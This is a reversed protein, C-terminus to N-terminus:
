KLERKFIVYMHIKTLTPPIQNTHVKKAELKVTITTFDKLFTQLKGSKYYNSELVDLKVLNCKITKFFIVGAKNTKGLTFGNNKVLINSMGTITSGESDM